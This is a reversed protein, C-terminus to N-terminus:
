PSSTSSQDSADPVEIRPGRWWRTADGEGEWDGDLLEFGIELWTELSDVPCGFERITPEGASLDGKRDVAPAGARELCDAPKSDLREIISRGHSDDEVFVHMTYGQEHLVGLPVGSSSDELQWGSSVKRAGLRGESLMQIRRRIVEADGALETMIVPRGGLAVLTEVIRQLEEALFGGDRTTLIDAVTEYYWLTGAHGGKFTTWTENGQERLDRLISRANHLKDASTVLLSPAHADCARLHELYRSKRIPWSPKPSRAADTCAEVIALVDEGFRSRIEDRLDPHDDHCDEIADHLLAAIVQDDSGGHAGVLSAVGWLHTVYPVGRSKRMQHRHLSSAFELADDVRQSYTM